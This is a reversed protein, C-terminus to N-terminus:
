KKWFGPTFLSLVTFVELRGILMLFSLYYKTFDSISSFSGSPGNNGMGVGYNSIASIAAGISEDFTMGSYSLIVFSFALITIYLFVFAMVKDVVQNSVVNGNIKVMYLAQPHIQRKFVVRTNKALVILRSIKMGGSTSGESGCFLVLAIFLFWVPQGWELYDNTVFGTSTIASVVHFLITRFTNEISGIRTGNFILSTFIIAVFLMVMGLYWRFEEDKFISISFKTFTSYILMFNAGGIFMLLIIVYETYASYYHSISAQKTSLGGTSVSSLAHCAADFYNMPGASLLVFGIITIVIYTFSMKKVIDKSRIRFQEESIGTVEAKYLFSSGSGFFPMFSMAFILIGIGGIWQTFSRWFHLSKPFVEINLLTSSGTTTFGCMSEFFADTFNSIAGSILFPLTGFLVMALWTSTVTLYVERKSIRKNNRKNRTLNLLFGSVFTIASSIYLSLTTAEKYYEGVFASLLIFLSEIMLVLGISSLVYHYNLYNLKQM